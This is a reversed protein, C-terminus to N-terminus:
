SKKAQNPLLKLVFKVLHTIHKQYSGEKKGGRGREGRQFGQGGEPVKSCGKFGNVGGKFDKVRGGRQFGQGGKVGGKTM